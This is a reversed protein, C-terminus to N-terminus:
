DDGVGMGLSVINTNQHSAVDITKELPIIEELAIVFHFVIEEIVGTLAGTVITIERIGIMVVSNYGTRFSSSEKRYFRHRDSYISFAAVEPETKGPKYNTPNTSVKAM